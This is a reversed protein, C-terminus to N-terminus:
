WQEPVQETTPGAAVADQMPEELQQKMPHELL